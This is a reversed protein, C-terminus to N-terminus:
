ASRIGFKRFTPGYTWIYHMNESATMLGQNHRSIYNLVELVVIMLTLLMALSILFFPRFYVETWTPRLHQASQDSDPRQSSSTPQDEITSVSESSDIEHDSLLPMDNQPAAPRQSPHNEGHHTSVYPAPESSHSGRYKRGPQDQVNPFQPRGNSIFRNHADADINHAEHEIADEDVVHLQRYNTDVMIATYFGYPFLPSLLCSVDFSLVACAVAADAQQKYLWLVSVIEDLHPPTTEPLCAHM